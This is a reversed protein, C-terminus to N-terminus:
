MVGYINTITRAKNNTSAWTTTNQRATAQGYTWTNGSITAAFDSMYQTSGADNTFFTGGRVNSSYKFCPIYLAQASNKVVFMTYLATDPVTITGSAWSGSWLATLGDQTANRHRRWESWSGNYYRHYM